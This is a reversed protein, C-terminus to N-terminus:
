EVVERCNLELNKMRVVFVLAVSLSHSVRQVRFADKKTTRTGRAVGVWRMDKNTHFLSFYTM